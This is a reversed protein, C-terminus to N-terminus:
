NGSPNARGKLVIVICLAWRKARTAIALRLELEGCSQSLSCQARLTGQVLQHQM